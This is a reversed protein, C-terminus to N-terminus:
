SADTWSSSSTTPPTRSVSRSCCTSDVAGRRRTGSSCRLTWRRRRPQRPCRHLAPPLRRRRARYVGTKVRCVGDWFLRRGLKVHNTGKNLPESTGVTAPARCCKPGSVRGAAVLSEYTALTSGQNAPHFDTAKDVLVHSSRKETVARPHKGDPAFTRPAAEGVPLM